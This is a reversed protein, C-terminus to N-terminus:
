QKIWLLRDEHSYKWPSGNNEMNAFITNLSPPAAAEELVLYRRMDLILSPHDINLPCERACALCLTCAWLEEETIYDRVLKKGDSYDKGYKLIADLRERARQRLDMFIKRPSLKKGTTNAPCVASCRGCETCTLADLYNKWSVDEADKVGFRVRTYDIQPEPLSPDLMYRVEQLVDEMLEAKGPADLRSLFVNPISLFVHFHKSYPLLNAFLFITLIHSWWCFEYIFVRSSFSQHKMFPAIHKSIPYWGALTGNLTLNFVNMGALTVMLFLILLLAVYADVKNKKKLEYGQFRRINLCCRRILFAVILVIIIYAFIDSLGIFFDYVSGLFSLSQHKGTLGDVVMETSGFLIVLFGWFVLAHMAGVVPRRLIREQFFGNWLTRIIRQGIHTIPYAKKLLWFRRVIRISTRIFFFITVFLFFAFVVQKM